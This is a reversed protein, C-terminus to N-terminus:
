KTMSVFWFETQIQIYGQLSIVDTTNNAFVLIIDYYWHM